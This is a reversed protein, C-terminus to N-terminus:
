IVIGTVVLWLMPEVIVGTCVLADRIVLLVHNIAISPILTDWEVLEQAYNAEELTPATGLGTRLRCGQWAPRANAFSTKWLWMYPRIHCIWIQFM